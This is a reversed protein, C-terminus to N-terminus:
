QGGRVPWAYCTYTKQGATVLGNGLAAYWADVSYGPFTTSTWFYGSGVPMALFPHGAPLAPNHRGYDLVSEQEKVNPLRWDAYGGRGHTGDLAECYLVANTWTKQTVTDPNKLWMLGTLNDTVCNSSTGAGASFRPSPSAVGKQYSGDDGAMSVATQGTKPVKAPFTGGGTYTGAIGFLSVDKKINDAALDTDVQTLNTAAYYGAQIVTNTASLKKTHQPTTSGVVRFFRPVPATAVGATRLDQLGRFAGDWQQTATLSPKWEITYFLAPNSNSWRITGQGGWSPVVVSTQAEAWGAALLGAALLMRATTM